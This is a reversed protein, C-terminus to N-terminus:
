EQRNCNSCAHDRRVPGQVCSLANKITMKDCVPCLYLGELSDTKQEGCRQCIPNRTHDIIEGAM